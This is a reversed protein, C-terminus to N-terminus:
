PCILSRPVAVIGFNSRKDQMKGVVRWTATDELFEEVEDRKNEGDWGAFALLKPEPDLVTVMKLYARAYMLDGGDSREQTETDIIETKGRYGLNYGGAVVFLKGIVACGKDGTPSLLKPWSDAPLWGSSSTSSNALNADFEMVHQKRTILFSSDSIAAACGGYM